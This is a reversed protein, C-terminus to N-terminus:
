EKDHRNTYLVFLQQLLYLQMSKHEFIAELYELVGSIKVVIGGCGLSFFGPWSFGSCSLCYKSFTLVAINM